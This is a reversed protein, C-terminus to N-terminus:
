RPILIIDNILTLMIANDSAYSLKQDDHKEADILYFALYDKQNPTLVALWHTQSTQSENAPTAAILYLGKLTQASNSITDTTFAKFNEKSADPILLNAAKNLATLPETPKEFHLDITLLQRQSDSTTGFIFLTPTNLQKRLQDQTDTLQVWNIPITLALSIKPDITIVATKFDLVPLNNSAQTDQYNRDVRSMLFAGGISALLIVLMALAIILDRFKPTVNKFHDRM